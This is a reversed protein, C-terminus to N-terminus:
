VSSSPMSQIPTLFTVIATAVLSLGALTNFTGPWGYSAALAKTLMSGFVSAIGFASFMIGYITAGAKPGFMKQAASPMLALNGALCFFLMCTNAAFALRSGTAFSYSLMLSAQLITLITFSSKFGIKDAILGWILRGGGNFLAGFGGIAAQFSDGSLTESSMAYMKYSAAVNLSASASAIIMAWMLWFQPTNLAESVGVGPLVSAVTKTSATTVKVPPESIMSSGITATLAYLLSLTRLMKPFNDYVEQPFAGNVPNLGKPNVLKTGILNFIFGGAGFGTLIGGSVLGKSQPMWKWGAIMPSTYALGVGTGFLVSYFLMFLGLRTQMSALYVSLSTLLTGFLLTKQPGLRAVLGPGFPMAAAQAVLTLPIVYLADAQANKRNIGDFFRLSPPAYSIWSGWAYLTGLVLHAMAGGIICKIGELQVSAVNGKTQTSQQKIAVAAVISPTKKERRGTSALQLGAQSSGAGNAHLSCLAVLLLFFSRGLM